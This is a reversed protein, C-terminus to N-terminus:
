YLDAVRGAQADGPHIAVRWLFVLKQGAPLNWVSEEQKPTSSLVGTM